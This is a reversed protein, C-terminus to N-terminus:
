SPLVFPYSALRDLEDARALLEAVDLREVGVAHCAADEAHAVYQRQDFLCLLGEVLLLGGLGGFLHHGALQRQGIKVVLKLFHLVHARHFLHEAHQRAHICFGEGTRLDVFLLHRVGFGDDLRHGRLLPVVGGDDVKGALLADCGAAAKRDLLDVLQELLELGHLLHGLLQRAQGLALAFLAAAERSEAVELQRESKSNNTFKM